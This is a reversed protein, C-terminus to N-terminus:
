VLGAALVLTTGRRRERAAARLPSAERRGTGPQFVVPVVGPRVASDAQQSILGERRETEGAIGM